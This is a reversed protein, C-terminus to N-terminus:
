KDFLHPYCSKMDAEAELTAGEILHNKWLVKTSDVEKNKLEKVKRILIQLLVEEQSLTYKVVLGDIPIVFEFDSICQKLMSVHIVPHVLTLESYLKLEYAVKGVRQLIDYPGTQRPSFKEKKGFIVVGKMPLIKLYLM